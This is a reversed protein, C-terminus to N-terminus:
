LWAACFRYRSCLMLILLQLLGQVTACVEYMCWARSTTPYDGSYNFVVLHIKVSSLMAPFIATFWDNMRISIGVLNNCFLDIYYYADPHRAAHDLVVDLTNLFPSQWVHTVFVTAPAVYPTGSAGSKGKYLDVCRSQTTSTMPLVYRTCIESTTSHILDAPILRRFQTLFEANVGLLEPRVIDINRFLM